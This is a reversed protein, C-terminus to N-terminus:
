ARPRRKRALGMAAMALGILALSAPEPVSTTGPSGVATAVASYTAAWNSDCTNNGDRDLCNGTLAWSILVLTDQFTGTSDHVFGRGNFNFKDTCLQATSGPVVPDCSLPTTSSPPIITPVIQVDFTYQDESFVLQTGTGFSFDFAAGSGSCGAFDGTCPGVTTTIPDFTTLGVVVANPAGMNNALGDGFGVSGTVFAASAFPAVLALLAATLVQNIRM